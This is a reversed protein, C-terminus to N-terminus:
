PKAGQTKGSEPYLSVGYRLAFYAVELYGKAIEIGEIDWLLRRRQQRRCPPQYRRSRAATGEIDGADGAAPKTGCSPSRAEDVDVGNYELIKSLIDHLSLSYIRVIKSIGPGRVQERIWSKIIPDLLLM